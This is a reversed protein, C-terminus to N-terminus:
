AGPAQTSSAIKAAANTTARATQHAQQSYIAVVLLGLASVAGRVPAALSPEAFLAVGSGVLSALTLWFSGTQIEASLTKM